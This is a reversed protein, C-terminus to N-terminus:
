RRARCVARIPWGDVHVRGATKAVPPAGTRRARRARTGRAAGRGSRGSRLAGCARARGRAAAGRAIGAPLHPEMDLDLTLDRHAALHALTGVRWRALDAFPPPRTVVQALVPALEAGLYAADSALGVPLEAPSPPKAARWRAQRWTPSATPLARVINSCTRWGRCCEPASHWWHRPTYPILKAGRVTGSTAEFALPAEATLVRMSARRWERSGRCSNWTADCRCGAGTTRWARSGRSPM